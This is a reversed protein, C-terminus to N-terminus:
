LNYTTQGPPESPNANPQLHPPRQDPALLEHFIKLTTVLLISFIRKSIELRHLFLTTQNM